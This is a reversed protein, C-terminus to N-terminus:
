RSGRVPNRHSPNSSRSGRFRQLYKKGQDIGEEILGTAGSAAGRVLNKLIRSVNDPDKVAARLLATFANSDKSSIGYKKLMEVDNELLQNSFGKSRIDQVLGELQRRPMEKLWDQAYIFNQLEGVNRANALAAAKADERAKMRQEQYYNVKRPSSVVVEHDLGEGSPSYLENVYDESYPTDLGEQHSALLLAYDDNVMEQYKIENRLKAIAADTQLTHLTSDRVNLARDGAASDYPATGSAASPASATPNGAGNILNPNLGAEGLLKLQNAPSNYENTRNWMDINWDNQMKMLAIQRNYARDEAERAEYKAVANKGANLLGGVVPVSSVGPISSVVDLAGSTLNSLFSM